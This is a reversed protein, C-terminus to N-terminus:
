YDFVHEVPLNAQGLRVLLRDLFPVPAALVVRKRTPDSALPQTFLTRSDEFATPGYAPVLVSLLIASTNGAIEKFAEGRAALTGAAQAFRDYRPLHVLSDKVLVVATTPLPRDYAQHTGFGILKAYLLKAILETTLFYRREMKRMFSGGVLPTSTWLSKFRTSYDFEYWPHDKIFAVYDAMYEANYRDEATIPAGTDTLRGVLAEYTAKLAYEVTTSVGIVCIMVHYSANVPFADKIQDNVIRYSQWFQAVHAMFPFATSTRNQFALAQEEPSFVLFWEPFTLFTQDAPRIDAKPTAPNPNPQLWEAPLVRGQGVAFTTPSRTQILAIGAALALSALILAYLRKM